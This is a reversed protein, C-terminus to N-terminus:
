EDLTHKEIEVFDNSSNNTDELVEYGLAGSAEEDVKRLVAHGQFAVSFQVNGADIDTRLRKKSGIGNFVEVGDMIWGCPVAVVKDVTSGPKQVISSPEAIFDQITMGSPAKFIVVAPSTASMTYANAIGTKVVCDLIRSTQINSGPAPHWATNSFYNTNYCVFYDPKNLNVSEPYQARHDIAGFICLVADEGPALPFDKGSGPFQWLAQVIPVFDRFVVEGTEPDTSIWPNTSVSNYPDLTGFCLSDLYQAQASNNHLIIYKDIQYNGQEPYKQCGGFYMEKIVIDGSVSGVVKMSLERDAGSLIVKDSAGSYTRGDLRANLVIRYIGNPLEAKANGDADTTVTYSGGRNRDTIVIGFGAKNGGAVEEPYLPKITLVNLQEKYPNVDSVRLCGALAAAMMIMYITRRM